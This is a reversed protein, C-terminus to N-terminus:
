VVLILISSLLFGAYGTDVKHIASIVLGAIKDMQGQQVLFPLLSNLCGCRGTASFISLSLSLSCRQSVGPYQFM